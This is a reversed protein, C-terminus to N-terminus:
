EAAYWCVVSEATISPTWNLVPDEGSTDIAFTGDGYSASLTDEAIVCVGVVTDNDADTGILVYTGNNAAYPSEVTELYSPVAVTLAMKSIGEYASGPTINTTGNATVTLTKEELVSSTDVVVPNFAQGEDAFYTKSESAELPKIVVPQGGTLSYSKYSTSM